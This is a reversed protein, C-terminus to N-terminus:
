DFSILGIGVRIRLTEGTDRAKPSPFKVASLLTGSTAGKGSSSILFGGRLTAPGGMVIEAPVAYNNCEGGVVDGAAFTPRTSGAYNTFESATGPFTAATDGPVPTYDGSYLGIYWTPVQTGSKLLVNLWHNLGQEPLLNHITETDILKGERSYSDFTWIFGPKGHM